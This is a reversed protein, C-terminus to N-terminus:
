VAPVDIVLDINATIHLRTQVSVDAITAIGLAPGCSGFVGCFSLNPILM